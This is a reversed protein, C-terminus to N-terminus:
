EKFARYPNYVANPFKDELGAATASHWWVSTAHSVEVGALDMPLGSAKLLAKASGCLRLQKRTFVWHVVAPKTDTADEWVLISAIFDHEDPDCAVLCRSRQILAHLYPMHNSYFVSDSMRRTVPSGFRYGRGWVSLLFNTDSPQAERIHVKSM